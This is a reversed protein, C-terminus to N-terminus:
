IDSSSFILVLDGERLEKITKHQKTAKIYIIPIAQEETDPPDVGIGIMDVAGTPIGSNGHGGGFGDAVAFILKL